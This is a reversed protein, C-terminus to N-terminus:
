SIAVKRADYRRDPLTASLWVAVLGAGGGVIWLVRYDNGALVVIWGGAVLALARGTGLCMNYAGSLQGVIDPPLYDTFFVKQTVNIVAQCVGFTLSLAVFMAYGHTLYGLGCAAVGLAYALWLARSKHFREVILGVPVALCLMCFAQWGWASGFEARSLGASQVAFLVIFGTCINFFFTQVFALAGFRRLVADGFMDALFRGATLKPRVQKPLNRPERILLAGGAVFIIQAAVAVRYLAQEGYREMLGGMGYRLFLFATGQATAIMCGMVLTRQRPPILDAILPNDSGWLVDQFFQYILVLVIVHWFVATEPILWLCAAVVPAGCVLLAARRGLPTWIRDSVIGALPQAIFTFAPHAALVLGIVGANATFHRLTLPLLNNSIQETVVLGSWILSLVVFVRL